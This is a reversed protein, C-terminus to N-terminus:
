LSFDNPLEKRFYLMDKLIKGEEIIPHDYNDTFFNQITHSYQFGCSQYFSTTQVSDGTGVLMSQYKGKYQLFLHDILKRGYGKRQKSPTIAINKLECNGNGEDTVVAVGIAVSTNSSHMVFMEGRQLYRDIMSEQEDGLLLLDLYRKKDKEQKLIHISDSTKM